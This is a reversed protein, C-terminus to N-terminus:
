MSGQLTRAVRMLAQRIDACFPSKDYDQRFNECMPYPTAQVVVATGSKKDYLAGTYAALIGHGFALVPFYYFESGDSLTELEYYWGTKRADEDKVPLTKLLAVLRARSKASLERVRAGSKCQAATIGGLDNAYGIYRFAALKECPVQEFSNTGEGPFIPNARDGLALVFREKEQPMVQYIARSVASYFQREEQTQPMRPDQYAPQAAVCPLYLACLIRPWFTRHRAM